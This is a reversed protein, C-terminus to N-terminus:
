SLIGAVPLHLTFSTGYEHGTKVSVGGRHQRMIHKVIALGLGTGAYKDAENVRYFREGIRVLDTRDIGKGQDHVEVRVYGRTHPQAMVIHRYRVDMNEDTVSLPDEGHSLNLTIHGQRPSAHIANDILNILVQRIDTEHGRVWFPDDGAAQLDLVLQKGLVCSSFTDLVQTCVARLDLQTDPVIHESVEIRRLTLLDSILSQMHEAQTQMIALFQEQAQPDERAHGRLTEIYGLLAALPVKLEHSANALFDARLHNDREMRTIDSFSLVARRPLSLDARAGMGVVCTQFFREVPTDIHYIVGEIDDTPLSASFVKEVQEIIAPTRILTALLSGPARIDFLQLAAPNAYLIHQSQSVILLPDTHTDALRREGQDMAQRLSQRMVEVSVEPTRTQGFCAYLMLLALYAGGAVCAMIIPVSALASLSLICCLGILSTFVLEQRGLARRAVSIEPGSGMEPQFVDSGNGPM